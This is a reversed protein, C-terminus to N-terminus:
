RSDKLEKCVCALRPSAQWESRRSRLRRHSPHPMRALFIARRIGTFFNLTAVVALSHRAVTQAGSGCSKIPRITLAGVKRLELDTFVRYRGERRISEITSEFHQRYQM